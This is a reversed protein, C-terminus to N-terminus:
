CDAAFALDELVFWCIADIVIERLEHPEDTYIIENIEDETLGSGKLCAFGQVMKALSGSGYDDARETLLKRIAPRNARYFEACEVSYTFGNFGGNAGGITVNRLTEILENEDDSGLQDQVVALMPHSEIREFAEKHEENITM